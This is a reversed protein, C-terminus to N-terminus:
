RRCVNDVVFQNESQASHGKTAVRCTERQQEGKRGGEGGGRMRESEKREDRGKGEEGGRERCNVFGRRWGGLSSGAAPTAAQMDNIRSYPM